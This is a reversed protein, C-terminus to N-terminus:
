YEYDDLGGGLNPIFWESNLIKNEYWVNSKVV